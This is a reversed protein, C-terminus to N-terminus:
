SIVFDIRKKLKDDDSLGLYERELRDSLFKVRVEKM